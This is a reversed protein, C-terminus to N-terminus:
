DIALVRYTAGNLTTTEGVRKGVLAQGAPSAVSVVACAAGDLEIRGLGIALFFIGKDTSVLAGAGVREYRREVPVREMERLLVRLKALQAEQQDLEQQIMARGVEHKDGASSKTDSNRAELTSAIDREVNIAKERLTSAIHAILRAKQM